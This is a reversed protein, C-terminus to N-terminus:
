FPRGLTMQDLWRSLVGLFEKVTGEVKDTLKRHVTEPDLCEGGSGWPVGGWSRPRIM